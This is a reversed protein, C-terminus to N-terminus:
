HNFFDAEKASSNEVKVVPLTLVEGLMLVAKPKDLQPKFRSM